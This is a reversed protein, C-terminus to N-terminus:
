PLETQIRGVASSLIIPLYLRRAGLRPIQRFYIDAGTTANREDTWIVFTNGYRDMAVDPETQVTTTGDTNIRRNPTWRDLSLALWAAFIDRNGLRSDEWAVVVFGPAEGLRPLRQDAATTDDNVRVVPSWSAAAHRRASHLIDQGRGAIRAEQWVVHVTEASDVIIDPDTPAAGAPFAGGVVTPPDWTTAGAALRAMVIAGQTGRRDVWAAFFNGNADVAIAPQTQLGLGESHVRSAPRWGSTGPVFRSWFIDATGLRDDEWVAVILGGPGIAVDPNRQQAPSAGEDNVRIPATWAVSAPIFHSAYIDNEGDRDSHWLAVMEARPGAALAPSGLPRAQETGAILINASWGSAFQPLGASFLANAGSRLDIWAAGINGIRDVALAPRGQGALGPDDNV